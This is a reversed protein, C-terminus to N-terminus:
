RRNGALGLWKTLLFNANEWAPIDRYYLRSDQYFSIIGAIVEFSTM